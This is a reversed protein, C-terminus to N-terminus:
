GGLSNPSSESNSLNKATSKLHSSNPITLCDKFAAIAKARDMTDIITINYPALSEDKDVYTQHGGTEHGSNFACIATSSLGFDNLNKKMDLLHGLGVMAVILANEKYTHNM